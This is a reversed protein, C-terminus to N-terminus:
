LVTPSADYESRLEQMKAKTREEIESLEKVLQEFKERKLTRSIKARITRQREQLKRVEPDTYFMTYQKGCEPCAFFSRDVSKPLYDKQPVVEFDNKCGDCSVKM